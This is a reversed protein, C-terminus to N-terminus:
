GEVGQNFLTSQVIRIGLIGFIFVYIVSSIFLTTYVSLVIVCSLTGYTSECCHGLFWVKSGIVVGKMQVLPTLLSFSLKLNIFDRDVETVERINWLTRSSKTKPWRTTTFFYKWLLEINKMKGLIRDHSYIKWRNFMKQYPIKFFSPFAWIYKKELKKGM